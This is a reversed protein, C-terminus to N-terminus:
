LAPSKTKIGPDPLHELSPFPLGSWYEQRPLGMPLPAQCVLTRPTASLQVCSLLQCKLEEPQKLHTNKLHHEGGNAKGACRTFILETQLSRWRGAWGSLDGAGWPDTVGLETVRLRAGTQRGGPAQRQRRVEEEEDDSQSWALTVEGLVLSLLHPARERHDM